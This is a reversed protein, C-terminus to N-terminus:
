DGNNLLVFVGPTGSTTAVLDPKDDEILDGVAVSAINTQGFYTVVPQFTGDGNGLLVGVYFFFTGVVLDPKGDGNVDAVVVSNADRGGADYSVAPQFTGDGRGLLVSVVGNAIVGCNSAGTPLCNAVLVDPKGDGNVDAIAVSQPNVGGSGYTAPLRFTGDGNGLLVGISNYLNNAVVLDPKGDGNLDAVAVSYPLTGGSAYTVEPFFLPLNLAQATLAILIAFFPVVVRLSSNRSIRRIM